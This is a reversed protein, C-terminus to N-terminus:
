LSPDSWPKRISAPTTKRMQCSAPYGDCISQRTLRAVVSITEITTNWALSPQRKDQHPRRIAHHLQLQSLLHQSLGYSDNNKTALVNERLFQQM